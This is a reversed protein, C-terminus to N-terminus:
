ARVSTEVIAGAHSILVLLAIWATSILATATLTLAAVLKGEPPRIEGPLLPNQQDQLARIRAVLQHSFRQQRFLASGLMVSCLAGLLCISMLIGNFLQLDDESPDGWAILAAFAAFLSGNAAVFKTTWSQIRRGSDMFLKVALELSPSESM